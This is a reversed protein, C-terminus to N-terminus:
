HLDASFRCGERFNRCGLFEQGSASNTRSVLEGGCEPCEDGPALEPRSLFEHDGDDRPGEGGFPFVDGYRGWGRSSM